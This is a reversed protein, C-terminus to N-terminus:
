MSAAPLGACVATLLGSKLMRRRCAGAFDEGVSISSLM